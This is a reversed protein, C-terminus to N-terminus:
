GNQEMLAMKRRTWMQHQSDKPLFLGAMGISNKFAFCYGNEKEPWRDVTEILRVLEFALKSLEPLLPQKLALMTQYKFMIETALLDILAYNFEWLPGHRLVGPTYPDVFDDETLPPQNPFSYVLYESDDFRSLMSKARDMSQGLQENQAAFEDMPIMGRSLKAYLSAMDLGFRRNMSGVLALLKSPEDTYFAAQEADYEEKAIYWERSLITETGALIGAVVDFRAYWVFINSHLENHNASEPTLLERMLAHAAQHHDILNVWDGVYEQLHFNSNSGMESM